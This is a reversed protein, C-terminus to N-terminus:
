YEGVAVIQGIHNIRVKVVNQLGTKGIRKWTINLLRNDEATSTDLHHRFRYDNKSITQVKFLNPSILAYNRPDTLDINSPDFQTKANPFVFYENRKMTFLFTWGEDKKYEKDVAPLGQKVRQVAEMFPVTHEQLVGKADKFIAVHHNNDTQVFDKPMPQGEANLIPLGRHDTKTHLSIYTAKKFVRVKKVRIGKEKNLWIPDDDLNSFAQGKNGGFRDLRAELVRRGGEDVVKVM